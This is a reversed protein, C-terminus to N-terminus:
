KLDYLYFNIRKYVFNEYFDYYSIQHYYTTLNSSGHACYSQIIFDETSKFTIFKKEFNTIPIVDYSSYFELIIMFLFLFIKM